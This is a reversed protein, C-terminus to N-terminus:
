ADKKVAEVLWHAVTRTVGSFEDTHEKSHMSVINFGAYKFLAQAEVARYGHADMGGFAVPDHRDSALVSFLWGGPKLVRRIEILAKSLRAPEVIHQLCCVDIAADFNGDKLPLKQSVDAVMLKCFGGKPNGVGDIRVQAREIASTSVDAAWVAFGELYLWATQAGAGCGVDLVQAGPKLRRRVFRAM